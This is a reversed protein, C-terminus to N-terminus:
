GDPPWPGPHQIERLELRGPEVGAVEARRHVVDPGHQRRPLPHDNDALLGLAQPIIALRGWPLRDPSTGALEATWRMSGDDPKEWGCLVNLLTSKGSGSPGVLAVLEGPHLVLTVERLAHVHEDGRLYSKELGRVDVVTGAPVSV